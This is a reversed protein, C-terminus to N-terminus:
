RFYNNLHGIQITWFDFQFNTIISSFHSCTGINSEEADYRAERYTEREGLTVNPPSIVLMVTRPYIGTRQALVRRLEARSSVRRLSISRSSVRLLLFSRSTASSFSSSSSSSSSRLASRAHASRSLFLSRHMPHVFAGPVPPLAHSIERHPRWKGSAGDFSKERRM